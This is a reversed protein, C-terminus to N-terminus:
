YIFNSHFDHFQDSTRMSLQQFENKTTILRNPDNYIVKLHELIEDSDKYKNIARDRLRPAMHRQAKRTICGSMLAIQLGPINYHNANETLKQKILVLWDDFWVAKGNNLM